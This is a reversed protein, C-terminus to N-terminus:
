FDCEETRGDMRIWHVNKMWKKLVVTGEDTVGTKPYKRHKIVKSFGRIKILLIAKGEFLIWKQDVSSHCFEQSSNRVEGSIADTIKEKAETISCTYKNQLVEIDRELGVINGDDAVGVLVHGGGSNGFSIIARVIDARLYHIPKGRSKLVKWTSKERAVDFYVTEKRELGIEVEQTLLEQDTIPSEPQIDGWNGEFLSNLFKTLGQHQWKTRKKIFDPFKEPTFLSMDDLKMFQKSIRNEHALLSQLYNHPWNKGISSNSKLKISIKNAPHEMAFLRKNSYSFWFECSGRLAKTRSNNTDDDEFDTISQEYLANENELLTKKKGKKQKNNMMQSRRKGLREIEESNSEADLDNLADIDEKLRDIEDKLEDVENQIELIEKDMEEYIEDLKNKLLVHNTENELDAYSLDLEGLVRIFRNMKFRSQPFIHHVSFQKQEMNWLQEGTFWDRMRLSFPLSKELLQIIIGSAKGTTGSQAGPFGGPSIQPYLDSVTGSFESKKDVQSQMQMQEWLNEWQVGNEHSFSACTHDVKVDTSGGTWEKHYCSLIYWLLLKGLDEDSPTQHNLHFIIGGLISNDSHGTNSVFFLEDTLNRKFSKAATEIKSFILEIREKTLPITADEKQQDTMDKWELELIENLERPNYIDLNEDVILAKRKTTGFLTWLITKLIVDRKFGGLTSYVPNGNIDTGTQVRQLAGVLEHIKQHFDPWISTFLAQIFDPDALAVGAQNVTSFIRLADQLNANSNVYQVAIRRSTFATQVKGLKTVYDLKEEASLDTNQIRQTVNNLGEPLLLKQIIVEHPEPMYGFEKEFRFVKNMRADKSLDLVERDMLDSQPATKSLHLRCITTTRQQGDLILYKVSEKDYSHELGDLHRSRLIDESDELPEWVYLVGIPIGIYMSRFLDLQKALSKDWVSDRQIDALALKKTRVASVLENCTIGKPDESLFVSIDAGPM